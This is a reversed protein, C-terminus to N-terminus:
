RTGPLEQVPNGPASENGDSDVATVRYAYRRGATVSLDEFAPAPITATNLRQWSTPRAQAAESRYVNYGALDAEAGPRWSLDISPAAAIGPAAELGTPPQPPFTALMKAEVVPSPESRLELTQRDIVAVQVRQATYRYTEGKQASRDITGGADQEGTATASLRVKDAPRSPRLLDLGKARAPAPAAGGSAPVRDIEVLADGPQLKWELRIGRRVPTARLDEWPPLGREPPQGRRM